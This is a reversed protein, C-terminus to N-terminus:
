EGGAEYTVVLAAVRGGALRAALGAYRGTAQTFRAVLWLSSGHREAHPYLRRADAVSDGIRLGSATLWGRGTMSAVSFYGKAPLCPNADALNYFEARVGLARWSAHCYAGSRRSASPRGFARIAGALTGDAKVAYDGIRYDGRIVRSPGGAASAGSAVVAAVAAAALLRRV